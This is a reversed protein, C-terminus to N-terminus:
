AKVILPRLADLIDQPLERAFAIPKAVQNGRSGDKKAYWGIVRYAGYEADWIVTDTVVGRRSIVLTTQDFNAIPWGYRSVTATINNTM